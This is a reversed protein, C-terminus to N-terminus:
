KTMSFPANTYGSGNVVGTVQRGSQGMRGTFVFDSFRGQKYRIRVNGEADITNAVATDLSGAGFEDGYDGSIVAGNQTLNSTFNWVGFQGTWRGTMSGVVFSRTDTASGGKGDSVTVRAEGNGGSSFVISGNTGTFPNGAVDWSYSVTDGDPDTANANFEFRTLSQIGFGPAFNLSNITPSRNAPPPTPTSPATPTSPSSPPADKDGCAVALLCLSAILLRKM